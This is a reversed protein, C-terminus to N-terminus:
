RYWHVAARCLAVIGYGAIAVGSTVGLVPGNRSSTFVFRFMSGSVAILLQVTLSGAFLCVALYLARSASSAIPLQASFAAFTIFGLPNVLTLAYTQAFPANLTADKRARSNHTGFSRLVMWLGVAILVVASALEM